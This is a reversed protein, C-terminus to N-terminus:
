ETGEEGPPTMEIPDVKEIDTIRVPMYLNVTSMFSAAGQYYPMPQAHWSEAEDSSREDLLGSRSAGETEEWAPGQGGPAANFVDKFTFLLSKLESYKEKSLDDIDLNDIM